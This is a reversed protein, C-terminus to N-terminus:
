NTDDEKQEVVVWPEVTIKFSINANSLIEDPKDSGEGTITASIKFWKNSEVNANAADDKLQIHFYKTVPDLGFASYEGEIILRTQYSGKEAAANAYIYSKFDSFEGKNQDNLIVGEGYDKILTKLAPKYGERTPDILEQIVDFTEPAGRYYLAGEGTYENGVVTATNRVNALYIKKVKFSPSGSSKSFDANLEVLDVRSISRYLSVKAGNGETTTSSNDSVYWNNVPTDGSNYPTLGGVTLKASHMPLAVEEITQYNEIDKLKLNDIDNINLGVLDADAIECNALLYVGFSTTSTTGIQPSAVKVKIDKIETVSEDSKAVVDSRMYYSGDAKFILATLKQVTNEKGQGEQTGEAKTLTQPAAAISIYADMEEPGKPEDDNSCSVLSCAVLSALFLNILKM